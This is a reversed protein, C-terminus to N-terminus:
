EIYESHIVKFDIESLPMLNKNVIGVLESVLPRQLVSFHDGETVSVRVETSLGGWGLYQDSHSNLSARLLHIKGRYCLPKYQIFIKGNHQIMEFHKKLDDLTFDEALRKQQQGAILVALLLEDINKNSIEAISDSGYRNLTIGLEAVFINLFKMTHSPSKKQNSQALLLPSFSDIMLLEDVQQGNLTLQQAIEFAVAGGMSWGGLFYSGKSQVTQILTIYSTAMEELTDPKVATSELGYIAGPYNLLRSFEAYCHAYGGLPHVLFLPKQNPEGRKLLLLGEGIERGDSQGTAIYDAMEKISQRQFADVIHFDIGFEQNLKNILLSTLLSHGGLEFFNATTSITNVDLELVEGWIKALVKETETEPAIYLGGSKFEPEPLARKDLKGNGTLPLSTISTFTSPLMYDPLQSSLINRLTEPEIVSDVESVIYAALYERGEKERNIVVGHKVGPLSMLANEIEGLEVRFGRIKVQCDKRGLFEINGDPLLRGLDGSKYYRQAPIENSPNDIFFQATKEDDNLYGRTVGHGGIVIEGCQNVPCLRDNEDLIYFQNNYLPKGLVVVERASDVTADVRYYSSIVTTETPGYVNFLNKEDGFLSRWKNVQTLLLAEGGVLVTKLTSLKAKNQSSLEILQYFYSTTIALITIGYDAVRDIFMQPSHREEDPLIHVQGGVSLIPFIEGVSADFCLPAFQLIKDEAEYKFTDVMLLSLNYLNKHTVQVGKPVGTSGSTFVVYALDSSQNVIHCHTESETAIGAKDIIALSHESQGASSREQESLDDLCIITKVSHNVLRKLPTILSNQSIVVEFACQELISQIRAEPYGPDIPVYAAGSKLIGFIAPMFEIGREVFVGIMQNRQVRHTSLLNAIQNSLLDLSHYSYFQNQYGIAVDNNQNPSSGFIKEVLSSDQEFTKSTDNLAQYKKQLAERQANSYMDIQAVTKKSDGVLAELVRLYMSVLREITSNEFLSVAYKFGGSITPKGDNLLLGLDFKAASGEENVADFSAAEFPLDNIVKEDQGFSQVLFMVQFIPHRSTDRKINLADVLKEFPLEQNVRAQSIMQHIHQILSDITSQGQIDARLALSNVFLGILSQIQAHHRNDSPTGIVIDSQGSFSALTIYFGSLLVTFLTTEQSKALARLKTSLALDLNFKIDRGRYDIQNPRPYDIPLELTEIDSLQAQWYDILSQLSDGQLYEQQWLAYDGYSIDLSPFVVTKGACEAQYAMSLDKMFINSSWGDFAIHHLLILLYQKEGVNYCHLRISPEKTLDFPRAIDARVVTELVSSQDIINRVMAVNTDLIHQYSAGNQDRRYVTKLVPHRDIVQNLANELETLHCNDRLQVFHPIHNVDTGKEYQEIFLFREQSFSLPYQKCNGKPIVLMSQQSLEDAIGAITKQEFLLRLPIDVKLRKRSEATLKIASISNGGIRFFNDHIGVQELSLVEQWIECLAVEQVTSPATYNDQYVFEAEPLASKDLKGNTTLPMTNMSSFTSPVMYDPLTKALNERLYEVNVPEDAVFFAALYQNEMEGRVIVVAQQISSQENLASEIEGLEIRFGRLKIQSDNRGLFELNGNALWRVLDGTKYLRTYGKEIDSQSAFSNNIFKEQTLKDQNLYGRALGAGGICLEGPTGIPTLTGLPDLVYVKRGNIPKGIPVTDAFNECQYTTTFTTSETPGYGNLIFTPRISQTILSKVLSPSIAEGGILLYRLSGFMDPKATYLNDFLTKTLWLVSVKQESILTDLYDVSLGKNEPVIFLKGGATLAGWIELTAADFNPSSLQLMVDAASLDIFSNNKVLSTIGQHPIMVGKPQGTTGSTYIVYALDTAVNICNLNDKKNDAAVGLNDVVLLAPVVALEVSWEDVQQIYKQETLVLAAKTDDLIFQTRKKPHEPSIPVYTGGAKLVALMSVVMNLSRSLYLAILSDAKIEEKYRCQYSERIVHALRNARENLQHYSLEEDEFVLAINNPTNKVQQEFLQHLTQDQPYPADTQNWTHLLTHREQASTVDIQAISQQQNQVFSQLVRQYMRMMREIAAEDFLSIAYNFQGCIESQADDVFLSLDYKASRFLDAAGVLDNELFPLNTNESHAHGFGQLSFLVQFIPHRSTDREVKLADVVKEFPLEQHIKAEMVMKHVKNIYDDVTCSLEVDSRLALTNIFFGILSQIQPHQRNDSPTGIVIDSQGSLKALTVYFASLLVTYLTTMQGKALERLQQSLADDLQFNFDDGRYDIQDPRVHESPLTLTEYGTLQNTWYSVLADLNDDQLYSRQWVAYDVYSISLQPLKYPINQCLASYVVALEQMFIDISWGDFAIHHCLLLLYQEGQTEYCHLRISPEQALNFPQSIETQLQQILVNKNAVKHRNISILEALVQQYDKNKEDSLYVSKLVPHRTIIENMAAELAVLNVNDSLKVLSPMHYVDTGQEFREIFLLREQAFSLSPREMSTKPITITTQNDLKSVIGAITKQEFLLLLPIDVKLLKRSKATLRIATISNGGIRFFNDHIGVEDIGLVEQWLECLIIEQATKPAACNDKNVFEAEPLASKDLKGNITLPMSEMSTFTSPVMYDPLTKSINERLCEIDIPEDAVFFAALYQNEVKERVIVVAQQIGKQDSIASEIERLEIRFGRLKIQDDNRGLFELNGDELWRVLDGTKYLRSYGSVKDENRAFPNHIFKEDTLVSQNLYGRALGAGSVHLEGVSGIPLLELSESLVYVATNELAQGINNIGSGQSYNINQVSTVTTETPGYENILLEGWLEKLGAPCSEGGTVVRKLHNSEIKGLVMLYSPTAHLHSIKDDVVQQRLLTIDRITMRNPIFLSAGNFLSLFLQEISADFISEALWLVKENADFNMAKTQTVILNVVSHQEIMVGKPQGTTGSTYIVYALDTAQSITKLNDSSYAGIVDKEDVAIIETSLGSHGGICQDLRKVHHQQTLLLSTKTDDLIYQTRAEPYEPSVPVYAGGAKLVALISVILELGRDFYLAILTDAKLAENHRCQYSERILHALRNARENLQQYSLEENEFVLAINDPTIKVQQEFFQHLTQEQSCFVGTPNWKNLLTHREQTSVLEIQNILQQQNHTFGQLVRLYMQMMRQITPEDFLSIVYNFQGTIESKTDDLALTLDYKSSPFLNVSDMLDNNIFPLGTNESHTQGFGQVSFVVQFIPHRSSDREVKLADVVKEFPLEQHIKAQMVMQHVKVIYDVVTDSMDVDSRLALTNVFFGILSQTQPHQRNDSPTGIVVDQQGSLKALTVYFASLLVTYLTTEQGKALERLQQSLVEDLKFDFDAGRYEIQDPRVHDSPLALTEYDTLQNTWYSLLTDLNDDQLYGRQWIAYDVYSISLQPLEHPINQCFASYVVALEQMLIDVSWGDFAIHHCLLLLYQEGESQYCHLRISPEQALNFPQAIEAQLKQLLATKNAAKHRNISIPEDLVQQYDKDQKDSLYVSKLVPHRTIIENMAAELAVLNVEDNLKVFLPIHYVDTGQEFREIFLLREQAFSLSPRDMSIKPITIATQEDLKSAIAAITKQEFLLLLPIDIKLRKRSEGILTIATISNGGIRFFNDHIGVRELRLVEQWIDCLIEEQSTRPATHNDQNVFEPRPLARKDLKGNHTLPLAEIETFTAPLMYDPLKKSLRQYLIDLEIEKGAELVLYAALYPTGEGERSIVVAQKVEELEGLVNEIEGLEVRFGRIKLQCDKRGLFEINGDPLLRGLDGSKYYRQAPIENSPNDIFFQATKEDDNLYGGTVGDGGIVIEGCQNIPCLRHSEDLIYIQTNDLPKGLVVVERSSDVTADVRYYSSIVTTETPGYVNFLDKEDGFLSRWKNVQTLLLAEGGVLVKKLTSLKAKNQSALEILQYFYSTTIGLWTIGLEAVTDIFMQPSHRQEAPLIHVQGGVSLIPFIEGVSADFCLPAFQLVKDKPGMDFTEAVLSMNYINQHTVKVGKPIGTSGSTFIVYALDSSQNVIHSHTSSEAAIGAKDIIALRDESKEESQETQENLDDLCIIAKVTHSVLRKLPTILSNQSIVIEFACQELISQIREEPYSPDIPVYAAGSKLIGFIAPMFEIGREVFVGILQNRQVGRDRLLHAIQNSYEDLTQYSYSKNKYAVAINHENGKSISFIKEILTTPEGYSKATDNLDRYMQLDDEVTLSIQQHLQEPSKTIASIIRKMQASLRKVQGENLWDENYVLKVVLSDNKEYAVVTLPYETKEIIQRIQMRGGSKDDDIQEPYNEFVFMSHFLREGQHQLKALSISSYSNLVAINQQIAKLLDVVRASVDWDVVLPLTNIYLGVSSEIGEIPIDRGSVTTGVITQETQTYSHLLKHWVFQLAVNLTIGQQRCMAKLQYLDSDSLVLEHVAPHEISKSQSLDISQSLLANIDNAKDFKQKVESWYNEIKEQEKVYYAQAKLYATEVEVQPTEGNMLAAYYGNVTQLLIPESWGDSIIHHENKLVTYLTEHQKIITFHILGPKKLDFAITRDQSQIKQIEEDREAESLESIDIFKFNSASISAGKTIIQIMTKDWNFAMRLVPYHLSALKWAQQYVEINLTEYYDLLMQVRYADDKPQNLHHFIFGQQLSNAPYIAEINSNENPKDKQLNVKETQSAEKFLKFKEETVINNTKLFQLLGDKQSKIAEIFSTEPAVNGYSIKIKDNDAWLSVNSKKAKEILKLV